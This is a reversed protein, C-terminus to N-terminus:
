EEGGETEPVQLAEQYVIVDFEKFADTPIGEVLWGEPLNVSTFISTTSDGPKVVGAYACDYAGEAENYTYTWGEGWGNLTIGADAPSISVRATITCDNKGVNKIKPDKRIITDSEYDFHEETIETEVSGVTFTNTVKSTNAKLLAYTGGAGIAGAAVAGAIILIIRQLKNLKKM